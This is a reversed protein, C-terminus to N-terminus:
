PPSWLLGDSFKAGRLKVEVNRYPACFLLSWCQQGDKPHYLVLGSPTRYRVLTPVPDPPAGFTGSQNAVVPAYLDNTTLFGISALLVSVAAVRALRGAARDGLLRRALVLALPVGLAVWVLDRHGLELALFLAVTVVATLTFSQESFDDVAAPMTWAGIAVPLVWLPALVFRPDPAIFFWAVVTAACPIVLALMAATSRRSLQRRVSPLLLPALGVIALALPILLRLDYSEVHIWLTLWQWSSLVDAPQLGPHRAWSAIWQNASHVVGAPVRWSVPLGGVTVPFFPYGSLVAQRAAWGIALGAPLAAVRLSARLARSRGLTRFPRLALVLAAASLLATLWFLERSVAALVLMALATVAPLLAPSTEVAEALYLLGVVVFVFPAFDLSLTSLPYTPPVEIVALTALFLLLALRKTYPAVRQGAGRGFRLGVDVFVLAALFGSVLHVAGGSWPGHSLLAGFLLNPESAGLQEHLNALGPITHFTAAYRLSALHYYGDDFLGDDALSRNAAWVTALTTAAVVIGVSPQRPRWGRRALSRGILALGIVGAVLPAIWAVLDLALFLNWIELYVVLAALGIWLDFRALDRGAGGRRRALARRVLYGCGLLILAIGLWTLLVELTPVVVTSISGQGSAVL